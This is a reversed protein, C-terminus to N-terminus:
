VSAAARAQPYAAGAHVIARHLDDTIHINHRGLPHDVVDIAQRGTERFHHCQWGALQIAGVPQGPVVVHIQIGLQPKPIDTLCVGGGSNPQINPPLLHGIATCRRVTRIRQSCARAQSHATWAHVASRYLDHAIDRDYGGLPHDVLDIVQGGAERLHHCQWGALQIAGVPQGPVVVDIQISLKTKPIDTLCVGGCRHSRYM